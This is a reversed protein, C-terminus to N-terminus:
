KVLCSWEAVPWASMIDGLAAIDRDIGNVRDQVSQDLSGSALLKERYQKSRNIFTDLQGKFFGHLIVLREKYAKGQIARSAEADKIKNLMKALREEDDPQPANNVCYHSLCTGISMMAFSADQAAKRAVSYEEEGSYPQVQAAANDNGPKSSCAMIACVFLMVSIMFLKREISMAQFREPADNCGLLPINSGYCIRMLLFLPVFM